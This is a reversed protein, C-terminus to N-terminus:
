DPLYQEACRRMWGCSARGNSTFLVFACSAYTNKEKVKKKLSVCIPLLILIFLNNTTKKKKKCLSINLRIELSIFHFVNKKYKLQPKKLRTGTPRFVFFFCKNHSSTVLIFYFILTFILHHYSRFGTNRLSFVTKKWRM